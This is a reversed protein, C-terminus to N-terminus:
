QNDNRTPIPAVTPTPTAPRAPSTGNPRGAALIGHLALDVVDDVFAHDVPAHGHLLRHYLPGYPLDLAVDVPADPARHGPTLQAEGRRRVQRCLGGPLDRAFGLRERTSAMSGRPLGPIRLCEPLDQSRQVTILMAVTAASTSAEGCARVEDTYPPTLRHHALEAFSSGSLSRLARLERLLPNLFRVQHEPSAVDTPLPAVCEESSMDPGCEAHFGVIFQEPTDDDVARQLSITRKRSLWGNPRATLLSGDIV